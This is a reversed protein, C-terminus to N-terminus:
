DNGKEEQLMKKIEEAFARWDFKMAAASDMGMQLAIYCLDSGNM